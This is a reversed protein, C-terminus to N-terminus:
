GRSPSDGSIGSWTNPDATVGQDISEAPLNTALDVPRSTAVEDPAYQTDRGSPGASGEDSDHAACIM